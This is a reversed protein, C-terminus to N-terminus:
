WVGQCWWCNQWIILSFLQTWILVVSWQIWATALRSFWRSFWQCIQTSIWLLKKLHFHDIREAKRDYKPFELLTENSAHIEGFNHLSLDDEAASIMSYRSLYQVSHQFYRVCTEKGCGLAKQSSVSSSMKIFSVGKLKRVILKELLSTVLLIFEKFLASIYDLKVKDKRKLEAITNAAACSINVSLLFVINERKTFSFMSLEKYSCDDAVLSMIVLKMVSKMLGTIGDFILPIMPDDIQYSKSFPQLLSALYSSFQFRTVILQDVLANVATQYNKVEPRRSSPLTSNVKVINPWMGILCKKEEVWRTACFSNSFTNSRTISLYDAGWSHYAVQLQWYQRTKAFGDKEM